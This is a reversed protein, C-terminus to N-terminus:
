IADASWLMEEVFSTRPQVMSQRAPTHKVVIPMIYAHRVFATLPDDDFAYGRDVFTFITPYPYYAVFPADDDPLAKEILLASADGSAAVIASAALIAAAIARKRM